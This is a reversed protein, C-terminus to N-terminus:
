NLLKETKDKLGTVLRESFDGPHKLKRIDPFVTNSEKLSESYAEEGFDM